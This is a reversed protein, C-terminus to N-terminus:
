SAPPLGMLGLFSVTKDSNLVRTQQAEVALKIFEGKQVLSRQIIVIRAERRRRKESYHSRDKMVETTTTETMKLPHQTPKMTM